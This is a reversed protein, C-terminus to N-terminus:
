YSLDFTVRARTDLGGQVYVYYSGPGLTLSELSGNYEQSGGNKYQVYTYYTNNFSDVIMFGINDIPQDVSCARWLSSMSASFNVARRGSPVTFAGNLTTCTNDLYAEITTKDSSVPPTVPAGGIRTGNWPSGSGSQTGYWWTGTFSNGDPSIKFIVDGADSTPQYTPAESWWGKMTSGDKSIMGTIKGDDHAYYGTM